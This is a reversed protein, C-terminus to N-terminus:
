FFSYKCDEQGKEYRCEIIEAPAMNEIYTLTRFVMGYAFM